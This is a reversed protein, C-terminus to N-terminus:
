PRPRSQDSKSSQEVFPSIEYHRILDAPDDYIAVAGVLDADSWGGCRVAIIRIGARTAAEVDYPTDGLMIIEHEDEGTRQMAARVVGPDPKSTAVDDSSVTADILDKVGAQDLLLDVDDKGASTAVTLNVNDDRLRRLLARTGPAPQLRPLYRERFIEGKRKDLQEGLNSEQDLGFAEPILKDSGKGILRRVTDFDSRVGLEEGAEVFARAHADNSLLLTGDIDLILAKISIASM